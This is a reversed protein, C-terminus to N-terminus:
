NRLGSSPAPCSEWILPIFDFCASRSEIIRFNYASLSVFNIIIELVFVAHEKHSVVRFTYGLPPHPHSYDTRRCMSRAHNDNDGGKPLLFCAM